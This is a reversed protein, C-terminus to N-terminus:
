LSLKTYLKENHREKTFRIRKVEPYIMTNASPALLLLLELTPCDYPLHHNKIEHFVRCLRVFDVYGVSQLSIIYPICM